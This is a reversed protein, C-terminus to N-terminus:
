TICHLNLNHLALNWDKIQSQKLHEYYYQVNQKNNIKWLNNILNRNLVHLTNIM